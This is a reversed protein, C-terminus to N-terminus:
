YEVQRCRITPRGMAKLDSSNFMTRISKEVKGEAEIQYRADVISKFSIPSRDFTVIARYRM